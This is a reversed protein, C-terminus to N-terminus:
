HEHQHSINNININNNDIKLMTNGANVKTNDTNFGTNDKHLTTNVTSIMFKDTDIWNNKPTSWPTTTKVQAPKVGGRKLEGM